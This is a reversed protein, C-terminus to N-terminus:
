DEGPLMITIVPEATDGPGCIATLEVPTTMKYDADAVDVTFRIESREGYASAAFRLVNLVDWLRGSEDQLTDM